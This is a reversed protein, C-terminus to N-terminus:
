FFVTFYFHSVTHEVKLASNFFLMYNVSLSKLNATKSNGVHGAIDVRM